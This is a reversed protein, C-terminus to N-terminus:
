KHKPDFPQQNKLITYIIVLLKRMAAAMAVLKPKGSAVLRAYYEYIPGEQLKIIQLVAMFLKHRVIGSGKKQLYSVRKVSKGSQNVVPNMGFFAVLKKADGFRSIDGIYAELVIATEQSIGKITTLLSDRTNIHRYLEVLQQKLLQIEQQHEYIRRVLSQVVYGSGVGTKHAVSTAALTKMKQAFGLPLPWQKKGYRVARLEELSAKAIAEATPFSHLLALIQQADLRKITHEIEPAVKTLEIRLKNLTMIQQKQVAHIQRDLDKISDLLATRPVAPQPKKEVMFRAIDIANVADTKARRLESQAFRKTQVPNIVSVLLAPSVLPSKLGSPAQGQRKLFHYLNKWYDGTAEMGIRFEQTQYQRALQELKALLHQYGARSELV